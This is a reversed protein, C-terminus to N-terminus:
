LEVPNSAADGFIEWQRAKGQDSRPLIPSTEMPGLAALGPDAVFEEVKGAAEDNDGPVDSAGARDRM